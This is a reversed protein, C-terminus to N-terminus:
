AKQVSKPILFWAVGCVSLVIAECMWAGDNIAAHNRRNSNYTALVCSDIRDPMFPNTPDSTPKPAAQYGIREHAQQAAFFNVVSAGILFVIVAIRHRNM